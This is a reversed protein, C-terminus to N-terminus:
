FDLAKFASIGVWIIADIQGKTTAANVAANKIELQDRCAQNLINFDSLLTLIQSNNHSTYTMSSGMAINFATNEEDTWESSPSAPHSPMVFSWFKYSYIGVQSAMVSAAVLNQQDIRSSFYVRSAGLANSYFGSGIDDTCSNNLYDLKEKKLEALTLTIPNNVAKWRNIFKGFAFFRTVGIYEVERASDKYTIVGSRSAANYAVTSIEVPFDSMDIAHTVGDLSVTHNTNDIIISTM